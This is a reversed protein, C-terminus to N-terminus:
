IMADLRFLQSSSVDLSLLPSSIVAASSELAEM